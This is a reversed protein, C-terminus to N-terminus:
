TARQMMAINSTATAASRKPTGSSALDIAVNPHHFFMSAFIYNLLPSARPRFAEWDILSEIKALRDDLKHIKKYAKRFLYSSFSEM